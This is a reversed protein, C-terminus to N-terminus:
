INNWIFLLVLAAAFWAGVAIGLALPLPWRDVLLYLVALYVWYPLLSWMGFRITQKLDHVGRQTGVFYHAILAFTPFLPVLGAIYAHKSRALLQIVVVIAAGAAAKLALDM